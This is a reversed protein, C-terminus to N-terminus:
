PEDPASRGDTASPAPEEDWEEVLSLHDATIQTTGYVLVSALLSREIPADYRALVERSADVDDRVPGWEALLRAYHDRLRWREVDLDVLWQRRLQDTDPVSGDILGAIVADGCAAEVRIARYLEDGTPPPVSRGRDALARAIALGVALGLMDPGDRLEAAWRAAEDFRGADILAEAARLVEFPTPEPEEDRLGALLSCGMPPLRDEGPAGALADVAGPAPEEAAAAKVLAVIARDASTRVRAPELGLAAWDADIAVPDRPPTTWTRAWRVIGVLVAAVVVCLAVLAGLAARRVTM